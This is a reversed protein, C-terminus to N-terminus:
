KSPLKKSLAEDAIDLAQEGDGRCEDLAAMVLAHYEERKSPTLSELTEMYRTTFAKKAAEDM